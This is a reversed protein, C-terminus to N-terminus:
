TLFSIHFFSHVNYSRCIYAFPMILKPSNYFKQLKFQISNRRKAVQTLSEYIWKVHPWKTKLIQLLVNFNITLNKPLAIEM